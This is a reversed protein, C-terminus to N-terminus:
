QAAASQARAAPVIYVAGKQQNTDVIYALQGPQWSVLYDGSARLPKLMAPATPLQLDQTQFSQLDVEWVHDAGTGALVARRGDSSLAVTGQLGTFGSALMRTTLASSVSQWLSLAGSGSDFVLADNSKPNFVMAGLSSVSALLQPSNGNLLYVASNITGALVTVGDDALALFRVADPLASSESDRTLQPNSPLGAVVQLRTESVSYLAAATGNPSFAIIDAQSIGNTVPVIPGPEAGVFSIVGVSTGNAQEVIASKQGPAFDIRTVGEPLAIPPSVVSAGPVGNIARVESGTTVYAYGLTPAQMSKSVSASTQPSQNSQTLPQLGGGGCGFNLASLVLSVLLLTELHLNRRM